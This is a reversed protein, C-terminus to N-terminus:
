GTLRMFEGYARCIETADAESFLTELGERTVRIFVHRPRNLFTFHSDFRKGYVIVSEERIAVCCSSGNRQLFNRAALQRGTEMSAVTWGQDELRSFTGDGHNGWKYM